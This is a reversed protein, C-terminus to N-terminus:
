KDEPISYPFDPSITYAVHNELLVTAANRISAANDELIAEGSTLFNRAAIFNCGCLHAVTKIANVSPADVPQLSITYTTEDETIPDIYTTAVGFGCNPCLWGCSMKERFYNMESGCKECKM